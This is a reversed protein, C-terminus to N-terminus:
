FCESNVWENEKIFKEVIEKLVLNNVLQEVVLPKNAIPDLHSVKYLNEEICSRCYTIGFPTIVPDRMLDYCLKCTLYEPIERRKRRIDVENFLNNMENLSQDTLQEIEHLAQELQQDIVINMDVNNTTTIIKPSVSVFSSLNTTTQQNHHNTMKSLYCKLISLGNTSSQTSDKEELYKEIRSQMRREKDSQILSRLYTQLSIENEIRKQEMLSFRRKQAYRLLRQIEDGFNKNQIKSLELAQKFCTIAEDYRQQEIYYQGLYAHAKIYNPDLDLCHRADQYVKDWQKLKIYCLARNVYYIAKEGNQKLAQNYCHIADNYKRQLFHKNSLKHFVLHRYFHLSFISFLIIVPVIIMTAAIAAPRMLIFFKVWCVIAIELLFLFIGFGTSLIWALEVYIHMTEHDEYVLLDGSEVLPLICTSIMLALLHVGVVLCTLTSYATVLPISAKSQKHDDLSVEVMAVMAFGSLLASTRSVAKLKAKSFLLRREQLLHKTRSQEMRM